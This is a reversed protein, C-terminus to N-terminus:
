ALGQLVKKLGKDKINEYEKEEGDDFIVIVKYPPCDSEVVVEYTDREGIKGWYDSIIETAKKISIKKNLIEVVGNVWM